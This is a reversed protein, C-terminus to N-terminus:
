VSPTCRHIEQNEKNEPILLHFDREGHANNSRPSVIAGVELTTKTDANPFAQRAITNVQLIDRRILDVTLESFTRGLM